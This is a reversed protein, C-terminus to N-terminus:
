GIAPAVSLPEGGLVNFSSPRRHLESNSMSCVPYRPLARGSVCPTCHHGAKASGHKQMARPIKKCGAMEPGGQTLPPSPPACRPSDPQRSSPMRPEVTGRCDDGETIGYSGVSGSWPCAGLEHAVGIPDVLTHHTIVRAMHDSAELPIHAVTM